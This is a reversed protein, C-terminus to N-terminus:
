VILISVWHIFDHYETTLSNTFLMTIAFFANIITLNPTTQFQV